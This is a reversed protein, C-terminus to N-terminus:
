DDNRALLHGFRSRVADTEFQYVRVRNAIDYLRMHDRRLSAQYDQDFKRGFQQTRDHRNIRDHVGFRIQRLISAASEEGWEGWGRVMEQPPLQKLVRWGHCYTAPSVWKRNPLRIAIQM